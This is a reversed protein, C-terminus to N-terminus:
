NKSKLLHAIDALEYIGAGLPSEELRQALTIAGQAYANGGHIETTITFKIGHGRLIFKHYAHWGLHEQPVGFALQEDWSRLFKIKEEPVGILKALLRATGSVDAKTSQHSEIIGIEMGEGIAAVFAPFANIFRIMPLATNPAKIIAVNRGTPIPQSLKTSCQLIPIAISGSLRECHDVLSALERGSGFHIAVPKDFAKNSWEFDEGLRTVHIAGEACAGTVARAMKGNGVLLIHM